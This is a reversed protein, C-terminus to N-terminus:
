PAGGESLVLKIAERLGLSLCRCERLCWRLYNEEIAQLQRGKYRGFPMVRRRARDLAASLQEEQAALESGLILAEPRMGRRRLNKILMVASNQIEGVQAGDNLALRLLRAETPTFV